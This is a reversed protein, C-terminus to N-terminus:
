GGAPKPVPMGNMMMYQTMRGLEKRLEDMEARCREESKVIRDETAKSVALDGELERVRGKLESMQTDFQLRDRNSRYSLYATVLTSLVGLAGGVWGGVALTQDAVDLAFLM